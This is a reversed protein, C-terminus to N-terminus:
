LAVPCRFESTDQTVDHPREIQSADHRRWSCGFDYEPVLCVSGVGKRKSMVMGMQRSFDRIAPQWIGNIVRLPPAPRIVDSVLLVPLRFNLVATEYIRAPLKVSELEYPQLNFLRVTLNLLYDHCLWPIWASFHVAVAM